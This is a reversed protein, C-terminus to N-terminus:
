KDKIEMSKLQWSNEVSEFRNKATMYALRTEYERLSWMNPAKSINEQFFPSPSYEIISQLFIYNETYQLYEKLDKPKDNKPKYGIEPEKIDLKLSNYLRDRFVKLMFPIKEFISKNFEYLDKIDFIDLIDYVDKLNHYQTFTQKFNNYLKDNNNIHILNESAKKIEKFREFEFSLYEDDCYEVNLESEYPIIINEIKLKVPIIYKQIKISYDPYSFTLDSFNNTRVMM